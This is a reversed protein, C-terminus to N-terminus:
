YELDVQHNGLISRHQQREDPDPIRVGLRLGQVPPAVTAAASRGPTRTSAGAPSRAHRVPYSPDSADTSTGNGSEASM